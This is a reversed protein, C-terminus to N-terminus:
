KKGKKKGKDIVRVAKSGEFKTGDILEGAVTIEENGPTLLPILEQRDFKVMLDFLDNEDYDGISSPGLVNLPPVIEQGNIKSIIVLYEDIDEALYGDPLEIHTTIYNGNSKINITSPNIDVVAVIINPQIDGCWVDNTTISKPYIGDNTSGGMVWMLDNYVLSTHFYRADWEPLNATQTWTVGDESYWVDNYWYWGSADRYSGGLVWMKNVYVLSSHMARQSWDASDIAEQWTIGDESYWIDDNYTVGTSYSYSQGGMVWMKGDYVICTHSNRPSWGPSYTAVTWDKGNTSYWVDDMRTNSNLGLGGLIWIKDNYVVSTHCRRKNWNASSTACTWTIGDESYWVDNYIKSNVMGGMIWMKNDYVICTPQERPGWDASSTACTWTEGNTSYWVDNKYNDSSDIGGMIWMKNDYVVSTHSSRAAWDASDTALTWAIDLEDQAWTATTKAVTITFIIVFTICIINIVKLINIIKKM